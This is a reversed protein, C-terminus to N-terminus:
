YPSILKIKSIRRRATIGIFPIIDDYLHGQDLAALAGVSFRFQWKEKSYLTYNINPHFLATVFERSYYRNRESNITFFRSAEIGAGFRRGRYNIAGHFNFNSEEYQPVLYGVGFSTSFTRRNAVGCSVDNAINLSAGMFNAGGLQGELYTQGKLTTSFSLVILLLFTKYTKEM